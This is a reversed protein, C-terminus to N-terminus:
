DESGRVESAKTRQETKERSAKWELHTRMTMVTAFTTVITMVLWEFMTSPQWAVIALSSWSASALLRIM